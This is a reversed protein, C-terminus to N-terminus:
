SAQIAEVRRLTPQPTVLTYTDDQPLRNQAQHVLEEFTLAQDPFTAAGCRVSVGLELDAITEVYETILKLERSNTDPCLIVFRGQERQELILDTRRLYKSLRQAMSNIVYSYMMTQQVEEVARHLAVQVSEPKPEVVMISLPQHSNRSRFMEVEIDETADKLPRVRESNSVLTINMVASEFDHMAQAFRYSIWIPAILLTAETITLYTHLSGFFPRSSLFF